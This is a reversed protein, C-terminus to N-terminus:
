RITKVHISNKQMLETFAAEDEVRLAMGCEASYERPVPVVAVGIGAERCLKEARVASRANEFMATM